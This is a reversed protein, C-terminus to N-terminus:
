LLRLNKNNDGHADTYSNYITEKTM